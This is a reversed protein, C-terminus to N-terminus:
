APGREFQELTKPPRLCEACASDNGRSKRRKPDATKGNDSQQSMLRKLSKILERSEEVAPRPKGSAEPATWVRRSGNCQNVIGEADAFFVFEIEDAETEDGRYVYDSGDITLGCTAKAPHTYVADLLEPSGKYTELLEFRGQVVRSDPNCASPLFGGVDELHNPVPVLDVSEIRARFVNSALSFYEATTASGCTCALAPECCVLVTILVIVQKM